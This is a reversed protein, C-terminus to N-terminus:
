IQLLDYITKGWPGSVEWFQLTSVSVGMRRWKIIEKKKKKEKTDKEYKELSFVCMNSIQVRLTILSPHLFWCLHTGLCILGCFHSVSTRQLHQLDSNHFYGKAWHRVEILLYRQVILGKQIKKMYITLRNCIEAEWWVTLYFMCLPINWFEM